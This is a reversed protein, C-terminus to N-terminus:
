RLGVIVAPCTLSEKEAVKKGELFRFVVKKPRSIKKPRKHM